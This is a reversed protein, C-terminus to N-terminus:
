ATELSGSLIGAIEDMVSPPLPGKEMAGANEKVQAVTKFGPIPFTNPSRALLWGLAGQALTRGGSQLLERIAALRALVEPRPRGNEFDNVWGHGAGRVDDSPLVTKGTFKGTLIGMALPSRNLSALNEAGCLALVEPGDNFVNLGQQIATFHPFHVLRSAAGANDTSWGWFRILGEECLQELTEAAREIQEFPMEGPHIQYLDIYDTALRALSAKCARRVYEPSIDIEGLERSEEDYTFGFKTAIVVESRRSAVARGIMRESHGTGYADASDILNAGMELGAHIARISEADDVDGWGDPLGHLVFHGGIAWSGLGIAGAKIGSRGLTRQM